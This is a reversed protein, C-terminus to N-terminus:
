SVLITIDRYYSKYSTTDQDADFGIEWTDGSTWGSLSSLTAGTYTASHNLVITGAFSGTRMITTVAGILLDMTISVYYYQQASAGSINGSNSGSTPYWNPNDCNWQFAIRSSHNDWAWSPSTGTKFICFGHDSCTNNKIVVFDINLNTSSFAKNTVIPYSPSANGNIWMGSSDFGTYSQRHRQIMWPAISGTSYNLEGPGGWNGNSKLQHADFLGWIGSTNSLSRINGIVSGNRRFWTM